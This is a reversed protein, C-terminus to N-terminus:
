VLRLDVLELEVSKVGRWENIRPTALLDCVAGLTIRGIRDAWNWGVVRLAPGTGATEKVFFVAHKGSSGLLEPRTAIRLGDVCLRVPPNDRGFPALAVLGTVERASLEGISAHTDYSFRKTLDEPGLRANIREVFADAFPALRDTSLTLGAAMDHGGFKTLFEACEQLAGHLSVGEVSRGSGHCEGERQSLLVAPRCYKEVLRSCVIGVVGPHWARDALVIARKEPGTMGATEALECAKGFIELEVSRRRNNQTTLQQALERARSEDETLMLEVAERAHGMRGCANLRPALQFGVHDPEVNEGSLGSVEVLARLGAFPSQKIMRLGFRAIVRNEGVLPVVDAIVGMAALALLDLLLKRWAECLRPGGHELTMIRWALKYAVGAGCLEGFPYAGGPLRPHVLAFAGPLEEGAGPLNHHDSIVLDVGRRRAVEAPGCATIGCDVSVILGAGADCLEGIAQSSLGYGEDVRHPVYSEVRCAPAVARLTRILIATATVGDVDYDGYVVIKEGARAAALIREAAADVGPLLSPDHLHALSPALFRESAWGPAVGRARLVRELLTGTTPTSRASWRGALGRVISPGDTADRTTLPAANAV